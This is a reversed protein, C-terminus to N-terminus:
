AFRQVGFADLLQALSGAQASGLRYQGQARDQVLTAGAATDGLVAGFAARAAGTADRASMALPTPHRRALLQGRHAGPEGALIAIASAGATRAALSAGGGAVAVSGGAFGESGPRAAITRLSATAIARNTGTARARLPMAAPTWGPAASVTGAIASRAPQHDADVVVVAAGL